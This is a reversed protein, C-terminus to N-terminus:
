CENLVTALMKLSIYFNLRKVLAEKSKPVAHSEMGLSVRTILKEALTIVELSTNWAGISSIDLVLPLKGQEQNDVSIM